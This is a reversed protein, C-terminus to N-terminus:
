RSEGVQATREERRREVGGGGRLLYVWMGAADGCAGFCCSFRSSCRFPCCDRARVMRQRKEGLEDPDLDPGLKGLEYYGQGFQAKYDRENYPVYEVPRPAKSYALQDEPKEYSVERRAYSGKGEGGAPFTGKEPREPQYSSHAQRRGPSRANAAEQQYGGGYTDDDFHAHRQRVAVHSTKPSNGQPGRGTAAGTSVGGAQKTAQM